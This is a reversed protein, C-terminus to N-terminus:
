RTVVATRGALGRGDQELAHVLRVPRDPRDVTEVQGDRGTLDDRDEPRVTRALGGGGLHDGPQGVRVGAPDRHEATRWASGDAFPQDPHHQLGTRQQVLGRDVVHQSQHLTQVGVRQGQVLHDLPRIQADNRFVLVSFSDPPWAWRSRYASAIMASGWSNIKSSGVTPMSTSIRRAKQAEMRSNM